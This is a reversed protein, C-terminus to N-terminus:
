RLVQQQSSQPKRLLKVMWNPIFKKDLFSGVRPNLGQPKGPKRNEDCFLAFYKDATNNINYQAKVKAYAQLSLKQLLVPDTYLKKICDGFQRPDNGDLRFGTDETVVETIGGPLDSVLPVLGCSMAELISVPSGEFETPLVFIKCERILELLEYKSVPSLFKVNSESLWQQQLQDKLEGNGIIYWEAPVNEQKLVENIEFLKTVGKSKVLRGIFAIKLKGTDPKKILAPIFVGHPLYHFKSAIPDSSLMVQHFLNSHSIFADIKDYFKIALKLNYFDHIIAVIKKGTPYISEAEVELNDNCVLTGEGKGVVHSFRKLVAHRNEWRSFEFRITEGWTFQDGFGPTTWTTDRYLIVKLQVKERFSAYEVLNHNLAAIGGLQDPLAIVVTSKM